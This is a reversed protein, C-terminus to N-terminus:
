VGLPESHLYEAALRDETSADDDTLAAGRQLGAGVYAAALVVGEERLHVADNAELVLALLAAEDIDVRGFKSGDRNLSETEVGSFGQEQLAKRRKLNFTFFCHRHTTPDTKSHM